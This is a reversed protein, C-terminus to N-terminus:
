PVVLMCQLQQEQGKWCNLVFAFGTIIEKSARTIYYGQLLHMQQWMKFLISQLGAMQDLLMAIMEPDGVEAVMHLPTRGDPGCLNVNAAGLDLLTKVVKRNCM